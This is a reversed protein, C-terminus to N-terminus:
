GELVCRVEEEHQELIMKIIVLSTTYAQQAHIRNGNFFKTLNNTEFNPRKGNLIAYAFRSAKDSYGEKPYRSRYFSELAQRIKRILKSKEYTKPYVVREVLVDDIRVMRSDIRVQKEVWDDALNRIMAGVFNILNGNVTGKAYLGVLDEFKSLFGLRLEQRLDERLYLPHKAAYISILPEVLSVAQEEAKYWPLRRQHCKVLLEAM